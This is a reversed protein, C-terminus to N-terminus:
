NQKIYKSDSELIKDVAEPLDAALDDPKVPLNEIEEPKLKGSLVAITKCGAKNGAEIDRPSDGVMITESLVIDFDRSACDLLGTDPKRCGCKESELHPCYYSADIRGGAKSVEEKLMKDMEELTQVSILGKGVAQQNSIVIIRYGAETLKKIAEKVGPLFRFESVNKVYDVRDKNIVGDRDLFVTKM